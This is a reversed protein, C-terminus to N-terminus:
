AAIEDAVDAMKGMTQGAATAFKSRPTSIDSSKRSLDEVIEYAGKKAEQAKQSYRALLKPGRSASFLIPDSFMENYASTGVKMAAALQGRLPTMTDFAPLETKRTKRAGTPRHPRANRQHKAPGSSSPRRTQAVMRTAARFRRIRPAIASCQSTWHWSAPTTIPLPGRRKMPLPKSPRALTAHPMISYILNGITTTEYKM